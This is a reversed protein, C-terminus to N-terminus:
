EKALSRFYQAHLAGKTDAQSPSISLTLPSIAARLVYQPAGAAAISSAAEVVSLLAALVSSAHLVNAMVLAAFFRLLLRARNKDGAALAVNFQESALQILATTFDQDDTNLLGPVWVLLHLLLVYRL